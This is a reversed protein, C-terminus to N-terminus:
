KLSRQSTINSGESSRSTPESRVSSNWESSDPGKNSKKDKKIKSDEFFEDLASVAEASFGQFFCVHVKFQCMFIFIVIEKM